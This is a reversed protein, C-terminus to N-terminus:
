NRAHFSLAFFANSRKIELLREQVHTVEDETIDQDQKLAGFALQLLNQRDITAVVEFMMARKTRQARKQDLRELMAAWTM